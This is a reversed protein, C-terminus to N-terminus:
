GTHCEGLVELRAGDFNSMVRSNLQQLPFHPLGSGKKWVLTIFVVCSITYPMMHGYFVPRM